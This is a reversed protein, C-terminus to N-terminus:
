IVENSTLALSPRPDSNNTEVISDKNTSGKDFQLIYYVEYIMLSLIPLVGNRTSSNAGFVDGPGSHFRFIIEM